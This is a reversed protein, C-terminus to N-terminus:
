RNCTLNRKKLEKLVTTPSIHLVRATDRIGSANMAMDVIQQKVAPSQGAYSYELLFTRGRGELCTRCRYRQKGEPSLGHKVIDTEQCYPCHLVQIIMAERVRTAPERQSRSPLLDVPKFCRRGPTRHRPTSPLVRATYQATHGQRATEGRRPLTQVGRDPAPQGRTQHGHQPLIRRAPEDLHRRQHRGRFPLRELARDALRDLRPHQALQGFGEVIRTTQALDGVKQRGMEVEPTRILLGDSGALAGERERGGAPIADQVRQRVQVEASGVMPDEAQFHPLENIGFPLM